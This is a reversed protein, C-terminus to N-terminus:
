NAPVRAQWADQELKQQARASDATLLARQALEMAEDRDEAQRAAKMLKETTTWSNGSMRAEALSAEAQALLQEVEATDAAAPLSFALGSVLLTKLVLAKIASM